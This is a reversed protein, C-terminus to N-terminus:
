LRRTQRNSARKPLFREELEKIRKELEKVKEADNLYLRLTRALQNLVRVARLRIVISRENDVVISVMSDFADKLKKYVDKREKAVDVIM